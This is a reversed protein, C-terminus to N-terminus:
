KSNAEEIYNGFYDGIVDGPKTRITIENPRGFAEWTEFPIAHLIPMEGGSVASRFWMRSSSFTPGDLTLVTVTERIPDESIITM